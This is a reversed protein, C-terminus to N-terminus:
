ILWRSMNIAQHKLLVCIESFLYMEKRLHFPQPLDTSLHIQESSWYSLTFGTEWFKLTPNKQLCPLISSACFHCICLFSMHSVVAVAERDTERQRDTQRDTERERERERERVSEHRPKNVPFFQIILNDLHTCCQRHVFLPLQSLTALTSVIPLVMRNEIVQLLLLYRKRFVGVVATPGDLWRNSLYRPFKKESLNFPRRPFSM